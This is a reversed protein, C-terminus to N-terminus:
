VIIMQRLKIWKFRRKTRFWFHSYIISPVWVDIEASFVLCKSLITAVHRHSFNLSLPSVSFLTCRSKWNRNQFAHWHETCAMSKLRISCKLKWRWFILHSDISTDCIFIDYLWCIPQAMINRRVYAEYNQRLLYFWIRSIFSRRRLKRKSRWDFLM